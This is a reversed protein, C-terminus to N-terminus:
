GYGGFGMLSMSGFLVIVVILIIILPNTEQKKM